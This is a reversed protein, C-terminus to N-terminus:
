RRGVTGAMHAVDAHGANRQAMVTLRPHRQAPRARRASLALLMILASLWIPARVVGQRAHATPSLARRGTEPVARRSRASASYWRARPRTAPRSRWSGKRASCDWWRVGTRGSADRIGIRGGGDLARRAIAVSTAAEGPTAPDPLLAVQVSEPRPAGQEDPRLETAGACGCRILGSLTELTHHGIVLAHAGPPPALEDLLADGAGQPVSSSATAHAQSM